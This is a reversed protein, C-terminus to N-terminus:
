IYKYNTLKKSRGRLYNYFTNYNLDLLRAVERASNYIIGTDLDIVKKSVALRQNPMKRNPYKRGRHAEGIREKHEESLVKGKNIDSLKRRTEKSMVIGLSGEGGDSLNVLYGKGLDRRGYESILLCELECAKDWSLGRAVIEIIYGHKNVVRKWFNSRNYKEQARRISGIGVYFVKNTDLTRHRYVIKRGM